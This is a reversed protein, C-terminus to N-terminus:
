MFLKIYKKAMKKVSNKNFYINNEFFNFNSIYKYEKKKILTFHYYYLYGLVILISKYHIQLDQFMTTNNNILSTFESLILDVGKNTFIKLNKCMPKIYIDLNLYTDYQKYILLFYESANSIKKLQINYIISLEYIDIFKNYNLHSYYLCAILIAKKNYKYTNSINLYYDITKNIINNDLSNNNNLLKKKLNNYKCEIINNNNRKNKKVLMVQTYLNIKKCKICLYDYDNDIIYIHECENMNM